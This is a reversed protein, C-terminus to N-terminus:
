VCFFYNLFFTSVKKQPQQFAQKELSWAGGQLLPPLLSTGVLLPLSAVLCYPLSTHPVLYRLLLHPPNSPIKVCCPLLALCHPLSCHCRLSARPLSAPYCFLLSAAIHYCVLCCCPLSSLLLSAICPPLLDFYCSSTVLCYRSTVCPMVLHPPLLLILSLLCLFFFHSHLFTLSFIFHFSIKKLTHDM